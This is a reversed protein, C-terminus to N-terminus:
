CCCQSAYCGCPDAVRCGCADVVYFCGCNDAVRRDSDRKEHKVGKKRADAKKDAMIPGGELSLRKNALARM